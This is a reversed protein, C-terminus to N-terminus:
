GLRDHRPDRFQEGLEVGGRQVEGVDAALLEGLAGQDDGRGAAVVDQHYPCIM